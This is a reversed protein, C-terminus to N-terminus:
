SHAEPQDSHEAVTSQPGDVAAEPEGTQAHQQGTEAALEGGSKGTEWGHDHQTQEIGTEPEAELNEAPEDEAVLGSETEDDDWQETEYEFESDSSGRRDEESLTQDSENQDGSETSVPTRAVDVDEQETENQLQCAIEHQSKEFHHQEVEVSHEASQSQAAKEPESGVDKQRIPATSVRFQGRARDSSEARAHM